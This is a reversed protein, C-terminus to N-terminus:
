LSNPSISHLEKPQLTLGQQKDIKWTITNNTIGFEQNIGGEKTVMLENETHTQTSKQKTFLNM